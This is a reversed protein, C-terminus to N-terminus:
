AMVAIIRHRAVMDQILDSFAGFLESMVFQKAQADEISNLDDKVEQKLQWEAHILPVPAHRLKLGRLAERIEDLDYVLKGKGWVREVAEKVQERQEASLARFGVPIIRETNVFMQRLDADSSLLSEPDALITDYSAGIGREQLGRIDEAIMADSQTFGFGAAFRDVVNVETDVPAVSIGFGRDSRKDYADIVENFLGLAAGYSAGSHGQRDLVDLLELVAAPMLDGYLSNYDGRERMIREASAVMDATNAKETMEKFLQLAAWYSAGSHNQGVLTTVLELVADPLLQGYLGKEVGKETLYNQTWKVQESDRYEGFKQEWTAKKRQEAQARAEQEAKYAKGEASTEWEQRHRNSGDWYQQVIDEASESGTARLKIDNFKATIEVGRRKQERVMRVAFNSIDEGARAELAGFGVGRIPAVGESTILRISGSSIIGASGAILIPTGVSAIGIADVLIKSTSDQLHRRGSVGRRIGYQRYAPVYLPQWGTGDPQEYFVVAEGGAYRQMFAIETDVSHTRRLAVDSNQWQTRMENFLRDTDVKTFLFNNPARPIDPALTNRSPIHFLEAQRRM